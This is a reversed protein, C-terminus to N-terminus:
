NDSKQISFINNCFPIIKMLDRDPRKFEYKVNTEAKEIRKEEKDKQTKLDEKKSNISRENKRAKFVKYNDLWFILIKRLDLKDYIKMKFTAMRQKIQLIKAKDLSKMMSTNQSIIESPKEEHEATDEEIKYLDAKDQKVDSYKTQFTKISTIAKTFKDKSTVM